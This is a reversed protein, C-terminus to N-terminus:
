LGPFIRPWGSTGSSPEAQQPRNAAPTKVGFRDRDSGAAPWPSPPLPRIATSPLPIQDVTM